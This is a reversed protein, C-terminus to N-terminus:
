ETYQEVSVSKEFAKIITHVHDDTHTAMLTCRLRSTEDPVTPPRIAPIFIGQKDLFVQQDVTKKADGIIIPIIPTIGEPIVYGLSSLADRLTQGITLLRAQREPEAQIFNSLICTKWRHFKM